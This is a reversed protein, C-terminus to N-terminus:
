KLSKYYYEYSHNTQQKDEPVINHESKPYIGEKM